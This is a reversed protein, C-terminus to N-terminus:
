PASANVIHGAWRPPEPLWHNGPYRNSEIETDSLEKGTWIHTERAGAGAGLEQLARVEIQTLGGETKDLPHLIVIPSPRFIKSHALQRFFFQLLKEAVTFDAIITRPHDFPNILRYPQNQRAAESEANAGIAIIGPKEGESVAVVPRDEVSKKQGTDRVSLLDPKVRIYFYGGAATKQLLQLLAM